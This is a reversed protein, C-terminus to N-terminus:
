QDGGMARHCRGCYPAGDVDFPSDDDGAHLYGDDRHVVKECNVGHKIGGMARRIADRFSRGRLQRLAQGTAVYTAIGSMQVSASKYQSEIWDLLATDADRADAPPAAYLKTGVPLSNHVRAQVSGDQALFIVADPPADDASPQALRDSFWARIDDAVRQPDCSSGGPLVAEILAQVAVGPASPQPEAYLAMREYSGSRRESPDSDGAPFTDSWLPGHRPHIPVFAVAKGQVAPKSMARRVMEDTPILTGDKDFESYGQAYLEARIIQNERVCAEIDAPTMEGHAAPEQETVAPRLPTHAGPNPYDAPERAAEAAELAARLEAWESATINAREVPVSNGSRFRADIRDRIAQKDTIM